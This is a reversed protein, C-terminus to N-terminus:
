IGLGTFQMCKPGVDGEVVNVKTASRRWSNCVVVVVVLDEAHVEKKLIERCRPVLSIIAAM